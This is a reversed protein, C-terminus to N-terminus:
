RAAALVAALDVKGNGTLPIEDRVRIDTPVMTAPLSTALERRLSAPDPPLTSGPTVVGVLRVGGGPIGVAAVAAQGVGPCRVLAAEIEAPEVRVGNVKVQRDARGIFDLSGDALWRGLDGTRYLQSGPPGFPDPVFRDATLRPQGLYGRSVGIGGVHIHGVVGVPCPALRETLVHVSTGPIPRGLAIVGDEPVTRVPMGTNGVTIETPGYEAALATGSPGVARMWARAVDARFADGAVVVVGALGALQPPDLVALLLELHGPTLMVFTYPAGAVLAAIWEGASLADPVLTAPQGDLLPTVLTPLAQDFSISALVPAGRSGLHNYSRSTWELYNALGRHPVLVANPVGTSGSTFIVYALDGLRTGAPPKSDVVTGAGSAPASGGGCAPASGGGCGEAAEGNGDCPLRVDVGLGAALRESGPGLVLAAPAAVRVMAALREQPLGPDMPLYAAGRGWTALMGALLAPSRPTLLGVVDGRGVGAAALRAALSRSARGLDAFTATGASWRIAVRDPWREIAAWLREPVPSPPRPWPAGSGWTRLVLEREGAPLLPDQPDADPEADIARLALEYSEVLRDVYHGSVTEAPVVLILQDGHSIVRVPGGAGTLHEPMAGDCRHFHLDEPRTDPPGPPPRVGERQEIARRAEALLEHWSGAARALAVRAGWVPAGDKTATGWRSVWVRGPGEHLWGAVALHAALHRAAVQTRDLTSRGVLRVVHVRHGAADAGSTHRSPRWAAPIAVAAVDPTM